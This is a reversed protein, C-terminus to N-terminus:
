RKLTYDHFDDDHLKRCNGTVKESGPGAGEAWVGDSGSLALRCRQERQNIAKAGFRSTVKASIYLRPSCTPVTDSCASAM